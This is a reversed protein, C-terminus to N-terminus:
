PEVSYVKLAGDPGSVEHLWAPLKGEAFLTVFSDPTHDVLGLIERMAPCIVLLSIGRARLIVRGAAIPENFFRFADLVGQQNRHYPAAVVAHPTYLLMHSGLDVPTMMREPPLGALDAFAAPMLCANRKARYPDSTKAEYDPFAALVMIAFVAVVIGASVIASGLLALIPAFGRTGGMRHWAVGVLMACAPIALPVAFRAARIQLLMVMLAIALFLGYVLWAAREQKQRVINWTIVTLATTVPVAVATAYVPEGVLSTVWPEAESIRDLWNALLWPDLEGYPGGLITPYSLVVAALAVGGAVLGAVLRPSMTRLPLVSLLAFAGGCLMAALAYTFSIADSGPVVWRDPAVGQALGLVTTLAFSLGFDRLAVAQRDSTVWALGFAMITAGVIPLAEIGITLALGAAIGAGLAFRPRELAAIACYLMALALLIQASHHDLRGPAFEAMTILSFAPLLLAPWLARRGGLRLGLKGTLWLLLGLLLLPWAYAAAVDAASGLIPRLVFLLAAEPLDILRSWHMIAGFPTNLRHQVLDFWGQGDLLDHVMNLRMADDTDLILPVTQASALSRTVFAAATLAWCILLPLAGVKNDGAM